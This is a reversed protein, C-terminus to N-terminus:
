AMGLCPLTYNAHALESLGGLLGPLCTTCDRSPPISLCPGALAEGPWLMQSECHLQGSVMGTHAGQCLAERQFLILFCHRRGSKGDQWDWASFCWTKLGRHVQSPHNLFSKRHSQTVEHDRPIHSYRLPGKEGSHEWGLELSDPRWQPLGLM